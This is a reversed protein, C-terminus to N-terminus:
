RKEAFIYGQRPSLKGKLFKFNLSNEPYVLDWNGKPLNWEVLANSANVVVVVSKWEDEKPSEIRYALVGEPSDLFVVRGRVEHASGLRFSPHERRLKILAQYQEVHYLNLSKEDWDMQNISDPAQYSNEVGQKTRLYEVGAHLFPVGQSTLVVFNSLLHMERIEKEGADPNAIKLKDYLTHNDHCSVYVMCQHPEAAWATDTNNVAAYDIQPHEIGGVVGFKVSEALDFNGSVYGKSEHSSWHGKLGDRIEDSFAGIGPMLSTHAKLARKEIPLPSDGATWGEGYVLVNPNSERLEREIENMTEMDHIAMLDFRFGDIHYEDAWYKLSEVMFKRMMPQESATENGCGSANGLTSDNWHRYYYGPVIEEFSLGDTRSTHNYVVDMVVGIGEQHLAQVMAKFEKIRVAGDAPNTSYSGEPVNYNQPDYGWNYQPEDLRTEDITYFDFAPLLHVHTVGMEKLHDIGTSLGKSNKTGRETFALFKGKNEMGSNESISFDRVHVEYVLFDNPKMGSLDPRKDESWNDPYADAPNILQGRKGNRGVAKVYPDPVEESWGEEHETQLTYYLGEKEANLVASWVGGTEVNMEIEELAKEEGVDQKYLNLKVAEAMPSWVKLTMGSEGFTLGLDNNKYVPYEKDMTQKQETQQCSM